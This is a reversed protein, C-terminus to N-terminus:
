IFCQVFKGVLSYFLKVLVWHTILNCYLDQFEVYNYNKESLSNKKKLNM